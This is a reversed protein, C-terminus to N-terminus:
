RIKEEMDKEERLYDVKNDYGHIINQNRVSALIGNPDVGSVFPQGRETPVNKRLSFYRANADIADCGEYTASQWPLLVNAGIHTAMFKHIEVINNMAKAFTSNGLGTLQVAQRLFYV